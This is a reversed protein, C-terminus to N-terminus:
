AAATTKEKTKGNRKAKKRLAHNVASLFEDRKLYDVWVGQNKYLDSEWLVIPDALTLYVGTHDKAQHPFRSGYRIVRTITLAHDLPVGWDQWGGPANRDLFVVDGVKPDTIM